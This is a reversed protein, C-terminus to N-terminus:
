GSSRRASDRSRARRPSARGHGGCGGPRFRRVALVGLDGLPQDGRAIRVILHQLFAVPGAALAHEVRDVPQVPQQHRLRQGVRLGPLRRALPMARSTASISAASVGCTASAKSSGARRPSVPAGSAAAADV